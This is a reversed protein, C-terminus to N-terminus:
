LTSADDDSGLESDHEEQTWLASMCAVEARLGANERELEHMALRRWSLEADDRAEVAEVWGQRSASVEAEAAALEVDASEWPALLAAEQRACEDEYAARAQGCAKCTEHKM